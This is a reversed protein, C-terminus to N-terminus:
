LARAVQLSRSVHLFGPNVKNVVQLGSRGVSRRPVLIGFALLDQVDLIIITLLSFLFTSLSASVTVMKTALISSSVKRFSLMSNKISRASLYQYRFCPIYSLLYNTHLICRYVKDVLSSLNRKQLLHICRFAPKRWGTTLGALVTMDSVHLSEDTLLSGEQHTVAHILYPQGPSVSTTLQRKGGVVEWTVVKSLM